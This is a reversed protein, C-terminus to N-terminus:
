RRYVSCTTNKLETYRSPRADGQLNSQKTLNVFGTSGELDVSSSLEGSPQREVFM